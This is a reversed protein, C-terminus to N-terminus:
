LKNKLYGFEGGGERSVLPVGGSWPGLFRSAAIAEM